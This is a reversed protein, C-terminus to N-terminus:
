FSNLLIQPIGFLIEPVHPETRNNSNKLHAVEKRTSQGQKLDVRTIAMQKNKVYIALNKPVAGEM